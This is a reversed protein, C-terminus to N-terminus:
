GAPLSFLHRWPLTLGTHPAVIATALDTSSRIAHCRNPLNAPAALRFAPFLRSFPGTIPLHMKACPVRTHRPSGYVIWPACSFLLVRCCVLACMVPAIPAQTHRATADHHTALSNNNYLRAARHSAHEHRVAYVAFDSRHVAMDLCSTHRFSLPECARCPPSPKTPTTAHDCHNNLFENEDCSQEGGVACGGWMWM